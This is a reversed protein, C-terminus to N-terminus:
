NTDREIVTQEDRVSCHGSQLTRAVFEQVSNHVPAPAFTQVYNQVHVGRGASLCAVIDVVTKSIRKKEFAALAPLQSNVEPALNGSTIPIFRRHDPVIQKIFRNGM